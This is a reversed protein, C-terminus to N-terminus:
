RKRYADYLEALRRLAVRRQETLWLRHTLKADHTPHLLDACRDLLTRSTRKSLEARLAEVRAQIEPPTDASQM